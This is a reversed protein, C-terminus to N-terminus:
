RMSKWMGISMKKFLVGFDVLLGTQNLSGSVVTSGVSAGSLRGLAAIVGVVISTGSSSGYLSVSLVGTALVTSTGLAIGAMRGLASLTATLTSSGGVSGQLTNDGAPRATATSIGASSGSLNGIARLLATATSSGAATGQLSAVANLLGSVTSIGSISVILRGVATLSGSVVGVGVSSGVIEASAFLIGSATSTGSASGEAYISLTLTATATSVGSVVGVLVAIASLTATATSTGATTGEVLSTAVSAAAIEMAYIQNNLNNAGDWVVTTLANLNQFQFQLTAENSGPSVTIDSLERYPGAPFIDADADGRVHAMGIVMSDAAPLSPLTATMAINNSALEVSQPLPTTSDFGTAIELVTITKRTATVNWTATVTGSGPTPGTLAYFFASAYIGTGTGAMEQVKTWTLSGGSFTDALSVPVLSGSATGGGVGVILLSNAAPSISATAVSTTSTVSTTTNLVVPNPIDNTVVPDAAITPNATYYATIETGWLEALKNVGTQNLHAGDLDYATALNDLQGTSVRNQGLADHIPILTAGNATCWAALQTNINRIEAAQTDSYRGGPAIESVFLHQHPLLLAAIADYHQDIDTWVSNVFADNGGGIILIAPARTAVAAPAATGAVWSMFQGGLGFSQFEFSGPLYGLDNMQYAVESTRPGTFHNSTSLQTNYITSTHGAVWSDGAVAIFPPRSHLEVQPATTAVSTTFDETVSINGDEQRGTGFAGVGSRNAAVSADGAVFLGVIDGAQAAVPTTFVIENLGQKTITFLQSQGVFDYNAGNLRFIKFQWGNTTGVNIARVWGREINTDQRIRLSTVTQLVTRGTPVTSGSFINAGTWGTAALGGARIYHDSVVEYFPVVSSGAILRKRPASHFRHRYVGWSM